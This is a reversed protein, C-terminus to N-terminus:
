GKGPKDVRSTVGNYPQGKTVSHATETFTFEKLGPMAFFVENAHISTAHGPASALVSLLALTFICHIKM